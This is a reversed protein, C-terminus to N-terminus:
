RIRRYDAHQMKYVLHHFEGITYPFVHTKEKLQFVKITMFQLFQTKM